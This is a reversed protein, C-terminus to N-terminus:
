DAFLLHMLPLLPAWLGVQRWVCSEEISVLYMEILIFLHCPTVRPSCWNWRLMSNVYFGQCRLPPNRFTMALEAKCVSRREEVFICDVAWTIWNCRFWLPVDEHHACMIHFPGVQLNHVVIVILLPIEPLHVRINLFHKLIYYSAISWQKFLCYLNM